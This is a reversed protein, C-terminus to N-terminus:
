LSNHMSSKETTGTHLKILSKRTTFVAVLLGTITCGMMTNIPSNRTFLNQEIILSTASYFIIIVLLLSFSLWGIKAPVSYPLWTSLRVLPTILMLLPLTVIFGAILFLVSAPVRWLEGAFLGSMGYLVANMAVTKAWLKVAVFVPTM